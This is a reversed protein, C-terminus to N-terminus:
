CCSRSRGLLIVLPVVRPQIRHSKPDMSRCGFLLDDTPTQIDEFGKIEGFKGWLDEMFLRDVSLEMATAYDVPRFLIDKELLFDIVSAAIMFQVTQWSITNLCLSRLSPCGKGDLVLSCATALGSYPESSARSGLDQRYQDIEALQMDSQDSNAQGVGVGGKRKWVTRAKARAKLLSEHRTQESAINVISDAISPTLMIFSLDTGSM